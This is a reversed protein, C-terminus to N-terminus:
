SIISKVGNKKKKKKKKRLGADWENSQCRSYFNPTQDFHHLSASSIGSGCVLNLGPMYGRSLPERLEVFLTKNMLRPAPTSMQSTQNVDLTCRRKSCNAGSACLCHHTGVLVVPGAQMSCLVPPVTIGRSVFPIMKILQWTWESSRTQWLFVTCLLQLCLFSICLTKRRREELRVDISSLSFFTDVTKHVALLQFM